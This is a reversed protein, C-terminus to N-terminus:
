GAKRAAKLASMVADEAGLRFGYGCGVGAPQECFGALTCLLDDSIASLEEELEKEKFYGKLSENYWEWNDVGGAELAALKAASDELEKLRKTSIKIDM